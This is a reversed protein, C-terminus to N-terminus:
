EAFGAYGFVQNLINILLAGLVVIGVIISIQFITRWFRGRQHRKETDYVYEEIAAGVVTTKTPSSSM